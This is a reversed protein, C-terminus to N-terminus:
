GNPHIVIKMAEADNLAEDLAEFYEELPYIKSIVPASDIRKQELIDLCDQFHYMQLPASLIKLGKRILLGPSVAVTKPEFYFFSYLVYRGFPALLNICSDFMPGDDGAADIIVDVGHPFLEKLAEEHKSYDDADVLITEIGCAAIRDLKSQILDLSVVRGAGSSKALQAILNGSSGCGIVAVSDGPKIEAHSVCSHACNLLESLCASDFSISEPFPYVKDARCIIYQAFGGQMNHGQAKYNECMTPMGMRCYYCTGCQYGNDATIRDGVSVHTVDKGVAAVVGAFEHGPTAPYVGLLSGNRDHSSEAPKCIGCAMVKMLVENDKCTPVPIEKVSGNARGPKEYVVAKMMEM